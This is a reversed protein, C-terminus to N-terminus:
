EEETQEQIQAAQPKDKYCDAMLVFGEDTMLVASHVPVASVAAAALITHYKSEAQLRDNFTEVLTGVTGDNYSQIEFTIYKM